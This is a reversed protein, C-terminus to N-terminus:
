AARALPFSVTFVAGPVDSRNGAQVKGRHFEAILRVVYLGLGLRSQKANKKGLSVMPDFLRDGMTSPLVPGENLISLRAENNVRDLRVMIPSDGSSFDVANDALKDLMQAIHDPAGQIQLPSDRVDLEFNRTPHSLRYGEVYSSVLNVLDFEERDELQLAEELNAAETLNTLISRLRLIGNKAREMYKSRQTLPMEQQLNDLSSNVVNLPNSMEHALTDPLGELYSTYQSLRALMGSISRSLDGIEDGAAREARIHPDRVRGDPTIAHETANRLRRIRLTIRSAFMLLAVTIILLVVVTISIVNELVQKQQSLVENSSQEVVVLGLVRDGTWVPHVAMLIESHRDLSPRRETQPVGALAKRFVQDNRLSIESSIQELTPAISEVILEYIRRLLADYWFEVYDRASQPSTEPEQDSSLKGVVTRVRQQRDLVWIRAVPRNLGRLIKAIEPSHLLLRNLPEHEEPRATAAVLSTVRRKEEDDVDAVVFGLRSQSGVLFRPIRMEVTYGQETPVLEAAIDYNPEGTVPYRWSEDMLYVSMRGPQRATLLYRTVDGGPSQLSLRLHDSNDLRRLTRDRFILREDTVEFLVYLYPGRYGVLHGFSLADAHYDPGCLQDQSGDFVGMRDLQEGWDAPDGDLRIHNPLPYAFIDTPEGILQPAGTEPDFLEPRDHLVTSVARATLSLANEQGQLLFGKMDRVYQYGMWPILLLALSVLLLKTRISLGRTRPPIRKRRSRSV